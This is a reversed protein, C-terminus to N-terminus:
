KKGTTVRKVGSIVGSAAGSVLLANLLTLVASSLTLVGTFWQALLLIALAAAYAVM